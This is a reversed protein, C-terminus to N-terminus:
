IPARNLAKKREKQEPSYPQHLAGEEHALASFRREQAALLHPPVFGSEFAAPGAAESGGGSAGADSDCTGDSTDSDFRFVSTREDSLGAPITSSQRWFQPSGGGDGGNSNSSGARSPVRWLGREACQGASIEASASLRRSGGGGDAVRPAAMASDHLPSSRIPLSKTRQLPQLSGLVAPCSDRRALDRGELSLKRLYKLRWAQANASSAIPSGAIPSLARTTVTPSPFM